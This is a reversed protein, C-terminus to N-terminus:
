IRKSHPRFILGVLFGILIAATLGASVAAMGYTMSQIWGIQAGRIAGRALTAGFGIIPITVGAHAFAEIYRFVGVAELVVGSLLFIVLIRASTMKTKNMLIQGIMCVLGGVLFVRAYLWLWALM